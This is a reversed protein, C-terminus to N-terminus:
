VNIGNAVAVALTSAVVLASSSSVGAAAPVKGDVVLQIGVSPRKKDAPAHDFAGKFGCQVYQWWQRLLSHPDLLRHPHTHPRPIDSPFVLVACSGAATPSSRRQPLSASPSFYWVSSSLRLVARAARCPLHPLPLSHPFSPRSPFPALRALMGDCGLLCCRAQLAGSRDVPAAPDSPFSGPGYKPNTNQARVPSGATSTTGVAIVM